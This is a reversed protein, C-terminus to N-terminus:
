YQYSEQLQFAPTPGCRVLMQTIVESLRLVDGRNPQWPLPRQQPPQATQRTLPPYDPGPGMYTENKGSQSNGGIRERPSAQPPPRSSKDVVSPRRNGRNDGPPGSAPHTAPKTTPPNLKTFKKRLFGMYAKKGLHNLHVGDESVKNKMSPPKLWTIKLPKVKDKVLRVQHLFDNIFDDPVKPLGSFPTIFVISAKPFVRASNTVLSQLHAPWNEACHDDSHLYDNVGLSYIVKKVKGISHKYNKLAEAAAVVCLGSVARAAVSKSEPDIEGEKIFHGNSDGIILTSRYTPLNRLNNLIRGLTISLSRDRLHLPALEGVETEEESAPSEDSPSAVGRETGFKSLFGSSKFFNVTSADSTHGADQDTAPDNSKDSAADEVALSADSFFGAPLQFDVINSTAALYKQNTSVTKLILKNDKAILCVPCTFHGNKFTTQQKPNNVVSGFACKFHLKSLCLRCSLEEKADIGCLLCLEGDATGTM